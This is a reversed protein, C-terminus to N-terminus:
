QQPVTSRDAGSGSESTSSDHTGSDAIGARSRDAGGGDTGAHQEPAGGRSESTNSHQQGDAGRSESGGQQQGDTGRSESNGQQQGGDTGRSASDGHQQGGDTGRNESGGQQQGDTGRSESNGQQQGDTGRSESNGQQQGGDTGRSASDGGQQRDADTSYTRDSDTRTSDGSQGSTDDTRTSSGDGSSNTRNGAGGGVNDGGTREGGTGGHEGQGVGGNQTTSLGNSGAPRMDPGGNSHTGVGEPGLGAYGVRPGGPAGVGTPAGMRGFHFNTARAKNGGSMAGNSLGATIMRPDFNNLAGGWGNNMVDIAFQPAYGAISGAFGAGLGTVAGKMGPGLDVHKLRNGLWHGAAAGGLAGAGSSVATMKVQDWNIDKRHGQEKQIWQIGLDQITGLALDLAVHKVLFKIGKTVAMKLVHKLAALLSQRAIMRITVRTAAIAALEVAPATPPFLWAAALEIALLGLSSWMMWKAYEIETGVGDASEGLKDFFEALKKLNNNEQEKSAGTGDRMKDFAGAIEDRAAGSPYAGLAASKAANIDAMIGRLEEAANRWDGALARMGTESGEPWDSGAVWGLTELLGDWFDM